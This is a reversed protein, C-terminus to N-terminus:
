TRRAMVRGVLAVTPGIDEPSTGERLLRAFGELLEAAAEAHDTM